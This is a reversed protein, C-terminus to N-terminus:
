VGLEEYNGPVSTVMKRKSKQNVKIIERKQNNELSWIGRGLSFINNNLRYDKKLIWSVQYENLDNKSRLLNIKYSEIIEVVNKLLASNSYQVSKDKSM